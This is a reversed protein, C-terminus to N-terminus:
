SRHIFPQIRLYRNKGPQLEEPAGGFFQGTLAQVDTVPFLLLIGAGYPSFRIGPCLVSPLLPM